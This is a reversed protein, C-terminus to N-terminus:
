FRMHFVLGSRTSTFGTAVQLAYDSRSYFAELRAGGGLGVGFQRTTNATSTGTRIM